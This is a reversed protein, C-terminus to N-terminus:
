DQMAAMGQSQMYKLIDEEEIGYTEFAIDDLMAKKILGSPVEGVKQATLTPYTEVCFNLYEVLVDRSIETTSSVSTKLMEMQGMAMMGFQPSARGWYECSQQYKELSTGIEDVVEKVRDDLLRELKETTAILITAYQDADTERVARRDARGTTFASVFDDKAIQGAIQIVAIITEAGIIGGQAMEKKCMASLRAFQVNFEAPLNGSARFEQTQPM